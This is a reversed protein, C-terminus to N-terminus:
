HYDADQCAMQVNRCGSAAEEVLVVRQRHYVRKSLSWRHAMQCLFILQRPHILRHTQAPNQRGAVMSLVRIMRMVTLM